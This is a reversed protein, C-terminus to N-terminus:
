GLSFIRQFEKDQVIRSVLEGSSDKDYFPHDNFLAGYKDDQWEDFMEERSSAVASIREVFDNNFQSKKEDVWGEQTLDQADNPDFVFRFAVNYIFNYHNKVLRELATKSGALAEQILKKDDDDTSNMKKIM